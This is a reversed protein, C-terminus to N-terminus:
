FGWEKINEDKSKRNDGKLLGKRFRYDYHRSGAPLPMLLAM